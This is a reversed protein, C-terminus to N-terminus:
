TTRITLWFIVEVVFIEMLLNSVEDM